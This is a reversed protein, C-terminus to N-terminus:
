VNTGAYNSDLASAEAIDNIAEANSIVNTSPQVLIGLVLLVAVCIIIAFSLLNNKRSM